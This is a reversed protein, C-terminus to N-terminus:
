GIVWHDERKKNVCLWFYKLNEKSEKESRPVKVAEMNVFLYM